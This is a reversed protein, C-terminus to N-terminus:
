VISVVTCSIVSVKTNPRVERKGHQLILRLMRFILAEATIVMDNKVVTFSQLKQYYDEVTSYM